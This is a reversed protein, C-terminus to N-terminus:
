PDTCMDWRQKERKRWRSVLTGAERQLREVGDQGRWTKLTILKEAGHM